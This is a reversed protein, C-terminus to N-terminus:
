LIQIQKVFKIICKKLLILNFLIMLILFFFIIVVQLTWGQIELRRLGKNETHKIIKIRSDKSAFDNLIEISNDNGCDDICIIELNKYTQNVVSTLCETIYKEVNYIPIIISIKEKNM